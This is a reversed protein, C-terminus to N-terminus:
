KGLFRVKDLYRLFQPVVKRVSSEAFGPGTGMTTYRKYRKKEQYIAYKQGWTIEGRNAKVIRKVNARLLGKDKPTKPESETQIDQLMFRMALPLQSKMSAKISATNDEVKVSM